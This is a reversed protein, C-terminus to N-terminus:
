SHQFHESRVETPAHPRPSVGGTSWGLQHVGIQRARTIELTCKVVWSQTNTEPMFEWGWPQNSYHPGPFSSCPASSLFVVDSWCGFMCVRQSFFLLWDYDMSESIKYHFWLWNIWESKIIFDYNISESQKIIFYYDISESQNQLSIM